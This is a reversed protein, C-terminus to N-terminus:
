FKLKHQLSVETTSYIIIGKWHRGRYDIFIQLIHQEM